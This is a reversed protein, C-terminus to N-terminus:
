CCRPPTPPIAPPGETSFLEVTARRHRRPRRSAPQHEAGTRQVGRGFRGVRVPTTRTWRHRAGRREALATPEWDELGPGAIGYLTAGDITKASSTAGQGAHRALEEIMHFLWGLACRGHGEVDQPVVACGRPVPWRPTSTSRRSGAAQDPRQTRRVQGAARGVDRGAEILFEDPTNGGPGSRCRATTPPAPPRPHRVAWRAQMWM